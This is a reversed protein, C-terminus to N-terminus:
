AAAGKAAPFAAEQRRSELWELLAFRLQYGGTSLRVGEGGWAAEAELAARDAAATV